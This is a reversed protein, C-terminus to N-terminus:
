WCMDSSQDNVATSWVISTVVHKVDCLTETDAHQTVRKADKRRTCREQVEVDDGCLELHSPTATVKVVDLGIKEKEM